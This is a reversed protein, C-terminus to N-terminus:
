GGACKRDIRINIDSDTVRHTKDARSDFLVVHGNAEGLYRLYRCDNGFEIAPRKGNWTVHVPLARWPFLRGRAVEGDRVRDADKWAWLPVVVCLGLVMLGVLLRSLLRAVLGHDSRRSAEEVAARPERFRPMSVVFRTVVALWVLAIIWLVGDLVVSIMAAPGSLPMAILPVAAVLALARQDRARDLLECRRALAFVQRIPLGFLWGIGVYLLFLAGILALVFVSQRILNVNGFGVEEPTTDFRGYFLMLPVRLLAYLIGVALGGAVVPHETALEVLWRAPSPRVPEAVIEEIRGDSAQTVSVREKSDPQVSDKVAWVVSSNGEGASIAGRLSFWRARHRVDHDIMRALDMHGRRPRGGARSFRVDETASRELLADRVDADAENLAQVFERIKKRREIWNANRETASPEEM